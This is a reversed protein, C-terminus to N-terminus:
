QVKESREADLEIEGFHATFYYESALTGPGHDVCLLMVGDVCGVGVIRQLLLPELDETNM